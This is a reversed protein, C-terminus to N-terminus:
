TVKGYGSFYSYRPHKDEHPVFFAVDYEELETVFSGSEMRTIRNEQLLDKLPLSDFLSSIPIFFRGKAPQDSVNALVVVTERPNSTSRAFALVTPHAPQPLNEYRGIRLAEWERRLRTLKQIFAFTQGDWQERDWVMPGRNSPDPGGNMGIEEGYYIMPIGSYSFALAYGLLRAKRHPILTALRPTDHTALVNWSRLLAPYHYRKAMRKLNAAAQEVTTEGKLLSLITARFYYNMVGDLCGEQAFEEAYGMIEGVAGDPANEESVIRAIESCLQPGLDNACDLRWGTAGRRLWYRLVSDSGKILTEIVVPHDLNLEPLSRHSQWCEYDVPHDLWLFFDKEPADNTQCAKLFWPHQTGVHNFVGDLILGCNNKRCQEVLREFAPMGGFAEDISWYDAVDYKHNSKAPFIPTLYVADAGLERIHDFHATIGDLSGGAHATWFSEASEPLATASGDSRAFRDVFIEYICNRVHLTPPM